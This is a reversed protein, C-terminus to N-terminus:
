IGKELGKSRRKWYKIVWKVASWRVPIDQEIFEALIREVRQLRIELEEEVRKTELVSCDVARTQSSGLTELYLSPLLTGAAVM